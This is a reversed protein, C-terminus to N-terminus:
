SSFGSVLVDMGTEELSNQELHEGLDQNTGYKVGSGIRSETDVLLSSWVLCLQDCM